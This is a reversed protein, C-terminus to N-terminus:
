VEAGEANKQLEELVVDVAENEGPKHEMNLGIAIAENCANMVEAVQTPLIHTGAWAETIISAKDNALQEGQNALTCFLWPVARIALAYNKEMQSTMDDISGYREVIDGMAALSFLLHFEREDITISVYKERM